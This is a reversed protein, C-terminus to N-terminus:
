NDGLKEFIKGFVWEFGMKGKEVGRKFGRIGMRQVTTRGSQAM